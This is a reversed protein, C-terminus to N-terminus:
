KHHAIPLHRAPKIGYKDAEIVSAIEYPSGNPSNDRTLDIMKTPLYPKSDPHLVLAVKPRLRRARNINIVVGVDGTNMEVVSGIPYVGICQIFQEILEGKFLKDRAKYLDRLVLHAPTADRYSRDSTLADYFDVIAGIMGFEGINKGKLGSKYGTGNYREHHCRAVEISAAAIDTKELIKVGEPVHSEMILAEKSTLESPKNLIENPVKMKGIDHMLAGVGLLGMEEKGFGLHRAFTLALISVRLCHEATYVDKEKLQTFCMLADPNRIVSETMASVANRAADTRLSRGFRIDEMLTQILDKAYSHTKRINEVEEEVSVSDQYTDIKHPSVQKKLLEFELREKDLVKPKIKEATILDPAKDGDEIIRLKSPEESASSTKQQDLDESLEIDIFVFKCYQRIQQLDEESNIPFGQFLFPTELWPRDLEHVYMGIALERTNVRKKMTKRANKPGPNTEMGRILAIEPGNRRSLGMKNIKHVGRFCSM